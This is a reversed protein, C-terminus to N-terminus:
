LIPKGEEFDLPKYIDAALFIDGRPMKVYQCDPSTVPVSSAQINKMNTSNSTVSEMYNEAHASVTIFSVLALALSELIGVEM